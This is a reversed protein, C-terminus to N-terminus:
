ERAEEARYRSLFYVGLVADLRQLDAHSGAKVRGIVEQIFWLGLGLKVDTAFTYEMLIEDTADAKPCHYGALRRLIHQEMTLAQMPTDGEINIRVLRLEERLETWLRARDTEPLKDCLRELNAEAAAFLKDQRSAQQEADGTIYRYFEGPNGLMNGM